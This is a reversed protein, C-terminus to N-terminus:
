SLVKKNIISRRAKGPSRNQRKKQVIAKGLFLLIKKVLSHFRGHLPLVYCHLIIGHVVSGGVITRVIPFTKKQEAVLATAPAAAGVPASNPENTEM